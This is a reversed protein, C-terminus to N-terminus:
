LCFGQYPRFALRPLRSESFVQKVAELTLNATKFNAKFEAVNMLSEVQSDSKTEAETWHEKAFSRQLNEGKNVVLEM